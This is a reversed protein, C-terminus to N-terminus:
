AFFFYASSGFWPHGERYQFFLLFIYIYENADVPTRHQTFLCFGVIAVDIMCKLLSPFWFTQNYLPQTKKKNKRKEYIRHGFHVPVM